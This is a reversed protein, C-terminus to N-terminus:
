ELTAILQEAQDYTPKDAHSYTRGGPFAGGAGREYTTSVYGPPVIDRYPEAVQGLGQAALTEPRPKPKDSPMTATTASPSFRLIGELAPCPLNRKPASGPQRISKRCFSVDNSRLGM